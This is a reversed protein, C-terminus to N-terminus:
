FSTDLNIKKPDLQFSLLKISLLKENDVLIWNGANAASKMFSSPIHTKHHPQNGSDCCSTFSSVSLDETNQHQQQM